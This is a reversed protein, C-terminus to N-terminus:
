LYRQVRSRRGGSKQALKLALPRSQRNSWAFFTSPLEQHNRRLETEFRRFVEEAPEDLNVEQRCDLLEMLSYVLDVTRPTQRDHIWTLRERVSVDKPSMVGDLLEERISTENHLIKKLTSRSGLFRWRRDFFLAERPAVLEQLKWGNKLWGSLSIEIEMGASVDWVTEDRDLRLVDYLHVLSITANQHYSFMAQYSQSLETRDRRNLCCMDIWIYKLGLRRVVSCGDMIISIMPRSHSMGTHTLVQLYDEYTFTPVNIYNPSALPSILEYTGVEEDIVNWLHSM